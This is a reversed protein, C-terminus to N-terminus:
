AETGVEAKLRQLIGRQRLARSVRNIAQIGSLFVLIAEGSQAGETPPASGSAGGTDVPFSGVVRSLASPVRM